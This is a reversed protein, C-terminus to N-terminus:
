IVFINIESFELLRLNDIFRAFFRKVKCKFATGHTEFLDFEIKDSYFEDM